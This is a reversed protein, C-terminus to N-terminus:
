TVGIVLEKKSSSRRPGRPVRRRSGFFAGCKLKTPEKKADRSAKDDIRDAASSSM